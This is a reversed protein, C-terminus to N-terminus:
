NEAKKLNELNELLGAHLQFLIDQSGFACVGEVYAFYLFTPINKKVVALRM